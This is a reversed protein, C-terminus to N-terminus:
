VRHQSSYEKILYDILNNNFEILTKISDERETFGLYFKTELQFKDKNMKGTITPEFARDNALKTMGSKRLLTKIKKSIKESESKINWTRRNLTILRILHNRSDVLFDPHKRNLNLEFRSEAVNHNGTEYHVM